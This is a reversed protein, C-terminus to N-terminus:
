RANGCEPCRAPSSRLDYGCSSCLGARARSFPRAARRSAFVFYATLAACLMTPVALSIQAAQRDAPFMPSSGAMPRRAEWRVGVHRLVAPADNQLTLGAFAPIATWTEGSPIVRDPAIAGGAGVVQGVFAPATIHSHSFGAVGDAIVWRTEWWEDVTASLEWRTRQWARPSRHSEIWGAVLGLTLLLSLTAGGLAIWLKILRGRWRM